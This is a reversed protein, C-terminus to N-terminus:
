FLSKFLKRYKIMFNIYSEGNKFNTYHDAPQEILDELEQLSISLKKSIYKKDDMLETENYLPKKLEELATERSIEGSLILSSLHAKRKDYGFKYPLYYSQFFKTWRSEFHKGGYYTWDYNEELHKIAKKKNYYICNLPSFRKMKYIYPYKFHLNFIGVFPLNLKKKKGYKKQISQIHILDLANYGWSKPLVSETSFNRGEIVYKIRAKIAYQYLAAFYVHDQPIDQNALNSKLFALQLDKMSDWDIVHTHLDIHLKKCINEINSVAARSNWGADVHVALPRLGWECLKVALYSSDVGGSIGIICDYESGKGEMKIKVIYDDLLQKGNNYYHWVPKIVHEFRQCHSCNGRDDFTILPDTSDMVCNNCLRYGLTADTYLAEKIPQGDIKARVPLPRSITM